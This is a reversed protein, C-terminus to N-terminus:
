SILVTACILGLTCADDFGLYWVKLNMIIDKKKLVTRLLYRKTVFKYKKEKKGVEGDLGLGAKRSM